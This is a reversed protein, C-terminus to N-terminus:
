GRCSRGRCSTCPIQECQVCGIGGELTESALVLGETAGMRVRSDITPLNTRM